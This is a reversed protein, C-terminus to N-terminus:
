SHKTSIFLPAVLYAAPIATLMAVALFPLDHLTETVQEDYRALCRLRAAWAHSREVGWRKPLLVFGHTAELLKVV